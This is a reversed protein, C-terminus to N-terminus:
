TNVHELDRAKRIIPLTKMMQEAFSARATERLDDLYAVRRHTSLFEDDSTKM